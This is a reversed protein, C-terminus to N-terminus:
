GKAEEDLLQQPVVFVAMVPVLGIKEKTYYDSVNLYKMGASDVKMRRGSSDSVVDGDKPKQRPQQRSRFQM